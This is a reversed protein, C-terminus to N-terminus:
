DNYGRLRHIVQLTTPPFLYFYKTNIILGIGRYGGKEQYYFTCKQCDISALHFLSNIKIRDNFVIVHVQLKDPLDRPTAPFGM